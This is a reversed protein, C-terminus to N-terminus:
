WCSGLGGYVTISDTHGTGGIGMTDRVGNAEATISDIHGTGSHSLHPLSVFPIPPVPYMSVCVCLVLVLCNFYLEKGLSVINGTPIRVTSSLHGACELGISSGSRWRMLM